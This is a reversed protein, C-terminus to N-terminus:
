GRYLAAAPSRSPCRALSGQSGVQCHGGTVLQEKKINTIVSVLRVGLDLTNTASFLVRTSAAPPRGPGVYFRLVVRGVM